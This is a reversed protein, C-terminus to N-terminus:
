HPSNVRGLHVCNVSLAPSHGLKGSGGDTQLARCPCPGMNAGTLGSGAQVDGCTEILDLKTM